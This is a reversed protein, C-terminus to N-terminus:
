RGLWISRGTLELNLLHRLLCSGMLRRVVSAVELDNGAVGLLFLSTLCYTGGNHDQLIM